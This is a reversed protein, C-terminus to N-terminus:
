AAASNRRDISPWPQFIPKPRKLQHFPSDQRGSARYRGLSMGLPYKLDDVGQFSLCGMM